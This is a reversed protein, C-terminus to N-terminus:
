AGLRSPTFDKPRGAWLWEIYDQLTNAAIDGHDARYRSLAERRAEKTPLDAITQATLMFHERAAAIEAKWRFEIALFEATPPGINPANPHTVPRVM